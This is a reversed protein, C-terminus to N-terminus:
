GTMSYNFVNGSGDDQASMDIQPITFDDLKLPMTLKSSKVSPFNMFLSRTVNDAGKYKSVLQLSFTVNGGLIQNTYTVTSGTSASLYSYSVQLLQNENGVAITYVGTAVVVSYQGVTPGSAVRKMWTKTVTNYVGFDQSFTAANTVTFTTTATTQAEDVSNLTEGTVATLGFMIQNFLAPDLVGISAKIDIKGKGTANEVPFSYSGWLGKMEFSFDVSVDQVRGFRVPTPNAGSPTGFLFGTGFNSQAM